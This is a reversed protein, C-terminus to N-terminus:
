RRPVVVAEAVQYAMLRQQEATRDPPMSQGSARAQEAMRAMAEALAEAGIQTGDARTAYRKISEEGGVVVTDRLELGFGALFEREGGVPLGFIWPEDRTLNLFRQVFQRAAEPITAMNINAIVDIMARYVFDFVIGSGPPHSGVFQFVGRIADEPLYMSVGEFIFFTRAAPDFGHRTLMDRLDDHEFDIAVYTLNRPLTGVAESVRQKKLAQTEPRDVEFVRVDKLLEQCRYAHTDFGAGLIVVQTAGRAVARELTEDVFRTRVTMARVHSVVEVDKMAADYDESLARVAPHDVDIAAPDGLLKEALYDPNRAAPDPERAGVARGAAVYLSTKSIRPTPRSSPSAV